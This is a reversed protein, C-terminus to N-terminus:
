DNVRKGYRKLKYNDMEQVEHTHRLKSSTEIRQSTNSLRISRPQGGSEKNLVLRTPSLHAQNSYRSRTTNNNVRTTQTSTVPTMQGRFRPSQIVNHVRTQVTSSQTSYKIVKRSPTNPSVIHHPSRKNPHHTFINHNFIGKMSTGDSWRYTGRGHRQNQFWM